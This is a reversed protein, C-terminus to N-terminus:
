SECKIVGFKVSKIYLCFMDFLCNCGETSGYVFLGVDVLIVFKKLEVGEVRKVARCQTM